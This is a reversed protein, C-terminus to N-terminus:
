SREEEGSLLGALNGLIVLIVLVIFGMGQGTLQWGLLREEQPLLPRNLLQRYRIGGDFGSVLGQIQGSDWYPRLAPDAAASTVAIVPAQNLPQVQELWRRVDESQAAVVLALAPREVQLARLIPDVQAPQGQINVPVGAGPAQGLLPLSAPGGPLYGGESVLPIAERVGAGRLRGSARQILRRASAPGGPLQSIVLFRARREVLHEFVGLAVLDMEGATAPDYSWDVLVLSEEPLAEIAAHAELLGPWAHPEEQGSPFGLFIGGGMLLLLLWYIWPRRVLAAGGGPAQAPPDALHVDERFAGRLERLQPDALEPSPPTALSPELGAWSLDAPELLGQLGALQRQPTQRPPRVADAEEQEPRLWPQDPPVEMEPPPAPEEPQLWPQQALLDEESPGSESEQPPTEQAAEEPEPPLRLLTGCHACYEADAPNPQGCHPCLPQSM